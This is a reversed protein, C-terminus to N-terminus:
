EARRIQEPKNQDMLINKAVKMMPAEINWDQFISIRAEQQGKFYESM